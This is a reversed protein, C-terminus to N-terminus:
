KIGREKMGQEKEVYRLIKIFGYVSVCFNCNNFESGGGGRARNEVGNGPQQRGTAQNHRIFSSNLISIKGKTSLIHPWNLCFLDFHLRFKTFSIDFVRRQSIRANGDTLISYLFNIMIEETSM